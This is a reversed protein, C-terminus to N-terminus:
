CCRMRSIRVLLRKEDEKDKINNVIALSVFGLCAGLMFAVIIAM